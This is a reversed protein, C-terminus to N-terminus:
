RKIYKSKYKMDFLIFYIFNLPFKYKIPSFTIKKWLMKERANITTTSQCKKQVFFKHFVYM